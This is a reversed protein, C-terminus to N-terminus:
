PTPVGLKQLLAHQTDDIASIIRTGDIIVLYIQKLSELSELRLGTLSLFRGKYYSTDKGKVIEKIAAEELSFYSNPSESLAIAKVIWERNGDEREGCILREPALSLLAHSFGYEYVRIGSHDVNVDLRQVLGEPTIKGLYKRTVQPNKKGPVRHSTTSYLFFDEGNKLIVTGKRRCDEVWKPYKAMTCEKGITHYVIIGYM